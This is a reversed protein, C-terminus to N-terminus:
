ARATSVRLSNGAERVVDWVARNYVRRTLEKPIGSSYQELCGYGLYTVCSKAIGYLANIWNEPAKKKKRFLDNVYLGNEREYETLASIVDDHEAQATVTAMSDFDNIRNLAFYTKNGICVIEGHWEDIKNVTYSGEDRETQGTESVREVRVKDGTRNTIRIFKARMPIIMVGDSCERETRNAYVLGVTFVNKM